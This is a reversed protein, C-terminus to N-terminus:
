FPLRLAVSAKVGFALRWFREPAPAAPALPAPAPEKAAGAGGALTVVRPRFTLRGNFNLYYLINM